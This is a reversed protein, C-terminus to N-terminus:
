DIVKGYLMIPDSHGVRLFDRCLLNTECDFLCKGNREVVLQLRNSNIKHAGGICKQLYGGWDFQRM